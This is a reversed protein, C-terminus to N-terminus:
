KEPSQPTYFINSLFLFIMFKNIVTKLLPSICTESLMLPCHYLIIFKILNPYIDNTKKM